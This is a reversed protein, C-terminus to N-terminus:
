HDHHYTALTDAAMTTPCARTPCGAKREMRRGQGEVWRGGGRRSGEGVIRIHCGRSTHHCGSCSTVASSRGSRM